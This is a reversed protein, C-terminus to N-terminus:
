IQLKIGCFFEGFDIIGHLIGRWQLNNNISKYIKALKITLYKVGFTFM